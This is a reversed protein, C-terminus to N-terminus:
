ILYLVFFNLTIFRSNVLLNPIPPSIPISLEISRFFDFIDDCYFVYDLEKSFIFIFNCRFLDNKKFFFLINIDELM